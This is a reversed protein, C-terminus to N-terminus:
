AVALRPTSPVPALRDVIEQASSIQIARTGYAGDTVYKSAWEHKEVLSRLLFVTRGHQMAVRAQMRAGSTEGAEVVVTAMSLGSMVVNRMPFTWRTPPQGPFFQSLIAGGAAVIRDALDANEPPYMRDLGTGIVASSVGGADLASTHAATDIGLALGSLVAFKAEVLEAALTRARATGEATPKRTGVIAIWKESRLSPWTGRVFVLSPRNFIEHLESPYDESLVSRVDLNRERWTAADSFAKAFDQDTVAGIVDHSADPLVFLRDSESLQVLRVASGIEDILAGLHSGSIVESRILAVTATLEHWPDGVRLDATRKHAPSFETM